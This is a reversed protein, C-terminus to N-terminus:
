ALGEMAKVEDVIIQRVYNKLKFPSLARYEEWLITKLRHMKIIGPHLIASGIPPIFENRTICLPAIPTRTELAVRFIAGHFQGVAKSRSRTGEPFVVISVGEKLLKTTKTFFDEFPMERVSLYGAIKAVIGLIPLRFPWKNVVQIAEYSLCPSAMLFPDSSSRHNSVFIFPGKDEKGAYNKYDVRVLPFPLINIIVTGYWVIARRLRRLVQRRPMILACFIIFTGLEPVAVLSFIIVFLYFTINLYVLKLIRM